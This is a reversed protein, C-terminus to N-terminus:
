RLQNLSVSLNLRAMSEYKDRFHPTAYISPRDLFSQLIRSRAARFAPEPVWAYETRVNREYAAFIASPRGLISLDIDAFLQADPDEVLARHTSVLIFEAARDGRGRALGMSAAAQRVLDASRAENDTARSDYIADHYWLAMEVAVPDAARSRVEELEDLCHAIHDMTHYARHPEAYCASLSSWEPEPDGSGGASAWFKLWRDKM